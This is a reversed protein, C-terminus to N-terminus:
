VRAVVWAVGQVARWGLYAVTAVVLLKFHWPAPVLEDEGAGAVAGGCGPCAGGEGLSTPTVFRDCDECWPM